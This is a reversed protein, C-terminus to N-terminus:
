AAVYDRFHLARRMSEGTAIEKTVIRVIRRLVRRRLAVERLDLTARALEGELAGEGEGHALLDVVSRWMSLRDELAGVDDVHRDVCEISSALRAIDQRLLPDIRHGFQAALEGFERALAAYEPRVLATLM